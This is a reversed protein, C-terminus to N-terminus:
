KKLVQSQSVLRSMAFQLEELTKSIQRARELVQTTSERLGSNNAPIAELARILHYNIGISRSYTTQADQYAAQIESLPQNNM